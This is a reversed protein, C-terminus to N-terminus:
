RSGYRYSNGFESTSGPMLISSQVSKQGANKLGAVKVAAGAGLAAAVVPAALDLTNAVLAVPYNVIGAGIKALVSADENVNILNGTRIRSHIDDIKAKAEASAAQSRMESFMNDLYDSDLIRQKYMREVAMLSASVAAESTQAQMLAQRYPMLEVIQSAEANALITQAGYYAQKEIETNAEERLKVANASIEDLQANIKNREARTLNNSEKKAEVLLPQLEAEFDKQQRTRAAEASALEAQANTNSIDANVQRMQLPLMALQLLDSLGSSGSDSAATNVSPSSGGNQYMLAPNLGAAQMDSVRRQVQTDEREATYADQEIQQQTRGSKFTSNIFSDVLGNIQTFPEDLFSQFASGDFSTSGDPNSKFIKGLWSADHYLRQPGITSGLWKLFNTM